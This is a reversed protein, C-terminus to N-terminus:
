LLQSLTQLPTKPPSHSLALIYILHITRPRPPNSSTHTASSSSLLHSIYSALTSSSAPNHAGDALVTIRASVPLSHFSLRGPWGAAKIGAALTEATLRGLWSSAREVCSPHTLLTSIVTAAIALNDLQYAGYLPLLAKVPHLFYPLVLSPDWERRRVPWVDVVDGGVKLVEERVASVVEAYRQRGLVFPKGRRAIRAKERAIEEVTHGLIAQHDLDVSALADVLVCEDRVVNTADLRGGMGVELVVVEVKELEFILMATSTLLEFESAGVGHEDNAQRVLRWAETYLSFNVTRGNITICDHVAVLHPSNFRGFSIHSSQFISSLLSSVSGKGNTGAIHITPRTYGPLFTLLKRIRDLSLDIGLTNPM